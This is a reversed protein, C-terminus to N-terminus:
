YLDESALRPIHDSIGLWEDVVPDPEVLKVQGCDLAVKWAEIRGVFRGKSTLFGMDEDFDIGYIKQIDEKPVKSYIDSHRYGCDFGGDLRRVAACLIYEKSNDIM